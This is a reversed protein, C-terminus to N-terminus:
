QRERLLVRLPRAYGLALEALELHKPKAIGEYNRTNDVFEGSPTRESRLRSWRVRARKNGYQSLSFQTKIQGDESLGNITIINSDGGFGSGESTVHLEYDLTPLAWVNEFQARIGLREREFRAGFSRPLKYTKSQALKNGYGDEFLDYVRGWIQNELANRRM